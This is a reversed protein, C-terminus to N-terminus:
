ASPRFEIGCKKRINAQEIAEIEGKLRGVEAASAGDGKILFLTPFFVIVGVTTMVADNTAKSNQEGIAAAARQAVRAAEERLQACDYSQYTAPSIYSASINDPRTACGALALVGFALLLHRM